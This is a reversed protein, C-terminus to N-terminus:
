GSTSFADAPHLAPGFSLFNVEALLLTTRLALEPDGPLDHSIQTPSRTGNFSTAVRIEQPTLHLDELSAYAGSSRYAARTTRDGLRKRVATRPMKRAWRCLLDWKQGLAFSGAPPTVGATWTFAGSEILLVRCLSEVGYEGLLAFLNQAPVLELAVLSDV